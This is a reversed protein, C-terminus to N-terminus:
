PRAPEEWGRSIMEHAREVGPYALPRSAVNERLAAALVVVLVLTCFWSSAPSRKCLDRHGIFPRGQGQQTLSSAGCAPPSWRPIHLRAWGM